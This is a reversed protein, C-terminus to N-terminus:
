LFFQAFVQGNHFLVIDIGHTGAMIRIRGDYVTEAVLVAQVHDVLRVQLAVAGPIRSRRRPIIIIDHRIILRLPELHQEVPRVGHVLPVLIMGAHQDPGTSIFGVAALIDILHGLEEALDVRGPEHVIFAHEMVAAVIIGAIHFALHIRGHLRDPLEQLFVPALRIDAALIGMRHAIGAAGHMFVSIQSIRFRQVLAAKDPIIDVLRQVLFVPVSFFELRVAPIVALTRCVIVEAGVADGVAAVAFRGRLHLVHLEIVLVDRRFHRRVADPYDVLVQKHIRICKVTNHRQLSVAHLDPFSRKLGMRLREVFVCVRQGETCHVHRALIRNRDGETQFFSRDPRSGSMFHCEPLMHIFHGTLFFRM